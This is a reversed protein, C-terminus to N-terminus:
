ISASCSSLSSQACRRSHLTRGPAIPRALPSHCSRRHIRTGNASRTRLNSIRISHALANPYGVSLDLSTRILRSIQRTGTSRTFRASSQREKQSSGKSIKPKTEYSSRLFLYICYRRGVWHGGSGKAPARETYTSLAPQLRLTENRLGGFILRRHLVM